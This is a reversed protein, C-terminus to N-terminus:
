PTLERSSPIPFADQASVAQWAISALGIGPLDLDPALELLPGLVFKRQQLRPHPLTLRDDACQTRGHLLLDLDLTRPANRTSRERGHLSEIALLADLLALPALETDIAAAANVYDPGPAGASISRWPRSAAVFTSRPLRALARVAAQVTSLPEGLNAGIGIYARQM